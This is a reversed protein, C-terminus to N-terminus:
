RRAQEVLFPLSAVVVAALLGLVRLLLDSPGTLGLAALGAALPLVCAAGVAVSRTWRRVLVQDVAADAPVAAALAYLTHAIWLVAAIAGAGAVRGVTGVGSWTAVVYSAAVLALVAGPLLSRPAVVSGLATFLAAVALAGTVGSPDAGLLALAAAVSVAGALGRIRLADASPLAPRKM